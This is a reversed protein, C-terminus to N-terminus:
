PSPRASGQPGMGLEDFAAMGGPLGTWGWQQQLVSPIIVVAQMLFKIALMNERELHRDEEALRAFIELATLEHEGLLARAHLRPNRHHRQRLTVRHHKRNVAPWHLACAAEIPAIEPM